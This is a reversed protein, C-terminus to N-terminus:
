PTIEVQVAESVFNVPLNVFAHDITLGVLGPNGTAPLNFTATAQGQGNLTGMSNSLLGSNPFSFTFQTYVDFNLPLVVGPLIFIGPTTGSISGLLMYMGGANPVGSYAWDTIM